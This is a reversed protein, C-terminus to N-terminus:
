TEYCEFFRYFSPLEDSTKDETLIFPALYMYYFYKREDVIHCKELCKIMEDAMILNENLLLDLILPKMNVDMTLTEKPHIIIGSHLLDEMRQDDGVQIIKEILNLGFM